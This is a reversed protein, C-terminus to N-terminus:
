FHPMSALLSALGWPPSSALVGAAGNIGWFWPTPTRDVAGIFRMGTPFGYGMLLGAPAIALVCTAARPILTASDFDQLLAPLWFPLAFLYGAAAMAWAVFRTRTSLPLRDSILSGFGTTLILSFLVICLSWIPHGLFVSMRQLLGIEACMFGIGILMFYASGGLALRRGVDGIAPRLPTLITRRVLILSVLFLLVLTTAAEINGSVAGQSGSHHLALRLARWPNYLPLQNFFFPREDTPPSLDFEQDSTYATLDALSRAAVIGGLLASAPARDPSLLIEFKMQDAVNDLRAVDQPTFPTRSVILNAINGAAALFIHRRPDTEGLDLLTATALSVVRGTENVADRAYWRSVTFVGHDTLHDFFIKWAEVTYLGNESLTFAGAGTAAWTDVLSM